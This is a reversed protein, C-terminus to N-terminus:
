EGRPSRSPSSRWRRPCPSRCCARNRLLYNMHFLDRAADAGCLAKGCRAQPGADLRGRGGVLVVESEDDRANGAGRCADERRVADLRSRDPEVLLLQCVPRSLDDDGVAGDGVGARRFPFLGAASFHRQDGLRQVHVRRVHQDGAGADDADTQVDLGDFRRQRFEDRFQVSVTLFSIEYSNWTPPFVAWM